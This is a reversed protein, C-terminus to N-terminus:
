HNRRKVIILLATMAALALLSLFPISVFGFLEIYKETCPVGQACPQISKPFLGAYLLNHYVATLLGAVTLPLAFRAANADFPFLGMPLILVLPFLAIRQYWCLVCPAFGMVESFFLSGLASASAILWCAFLLNWDRGSKTQTPM